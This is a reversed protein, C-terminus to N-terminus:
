WSQKAQCLINHPVGGTKNDRGVILLKNELNGHTMKTKNIMLMWKKVMDVSIKTSKGRLFVFKSVSVQRIMKKWIEHCM